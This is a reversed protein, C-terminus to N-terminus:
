PARPRSSSARAHTASHLLYAVTAIALGGVVHLAAIGPADGGIATWVSQLAMLVFLALSLPLQRHAVIATILIVLAVAQLASGLARHPDFTSSTALRQTGHPKARFVGLGALFFQVAVLGLFLDVLIRQIVAPLPLRVGRATPGSPM